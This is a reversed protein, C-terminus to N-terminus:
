LLTQIYSRDSGTEEILQQIRFDREEQVTQKTEFTSMLMRFAQKIHEEAPIVGSTELQEVTKKLENYPKVVGNQYEDFNWNSNPTCVAIAMCRQLFLMKDMKKNNLRLELEARDESKDFSYGEMKPFARRLMNRLTAKPGIDIILNVDQAELFYMTQNWQVPMTMQEALNDVIAYKKSYPLASVNSIVPIKMENFDYTYLLKRLERAAYEMMACHFPASVQLWTVNAGNKRVLAELETLGEREGSVVTQNGTNYISVAVYKGKDQIMKCYYHVMSSDIDTVAIMGGAGKPVAGQMLEGRRRVLKVADKLSIAGSCVLSSIEGLSHGALFGPKIDHKNMLVHYSAVETTLLAPQTVSTQKLYESDANFCVDALDYGLAESAQNFIDRVFDYEDYFDKAMGTYQSGQGPFVIALKDM